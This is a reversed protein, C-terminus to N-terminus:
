LGIAQDNNHSISSWPDNISPHYPAWSGSSGSYDFPFWDNLFNNINLDEWGWGARYVSPFYSRDLIMASLAEFHHTYSNIVSANKEWVSGTWAMVHHHWYISDGLREIEGSWYRLLTDMVGTYGVRMGNLGPNDPSEDLYTAVEYQQDMEAFWSMKFTDGFSDTHLNRFSEAFITSSEIDSYKYNHTDFVPNPNNECDEGPYWCTTGNETDVSIVVYVINEAMAVASVLWLLMMSVMILNLTSKQRRTRM